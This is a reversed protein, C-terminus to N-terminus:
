KNLLASEGTKDGTKKDNSLFFVITMCLFLASLIDTVTYSVIELFRNDPTFYFPVVVAIGAIAGIIEIMFLYGFVRWWQGKVIAKSYDLARKGSLGRLAVVYVYFTYYLGWIIGPVILLLFMGLVILGELLGTCLCAGWRSVAHRLAQQWTIPQALLSAEILRALSMTAVVGILFKTFYLIMYIPFGRLGLNENPHPVFSLGINIPIYVILFILLISVFHKRYHEWGLAIIQGLGYHTSFISHDETLEAGQALM